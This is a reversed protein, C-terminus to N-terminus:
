LDEGVEGTLHELGLMVPEPFCSPPLWQLLPTPHPVRTEVLLLVHDPKDKVYLM